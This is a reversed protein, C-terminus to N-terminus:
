QSKARKYEKRLEATRLELGLRRELADLWFLLAQRQALLYERDELTHAKDLLAQASADMIDCKGNDSM